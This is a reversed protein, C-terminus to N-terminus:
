LRLRTPITWMNLLSSGGAFMSARYQKIQAKSKDQEAMIDMTRKRVGRPGKWPTGITDGQAGASASLSFFIAACLCCIAQFYPNGSLALL